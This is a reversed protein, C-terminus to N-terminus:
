FNDYLLKECIEPDLNGVFINAGFDLNKHAKNVQLPKGSLKVM